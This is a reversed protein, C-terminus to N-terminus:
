MDPSKTLCKTCIYLIKEKVKHASLHRNCAPEYCNACVNGEGARVAFEM